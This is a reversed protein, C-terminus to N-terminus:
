ETDGPMYYGIIRAKWRDIRDIVVGTKRYAHIFRGHGIYIGVHNAWGTEMLKILVLCGVEPINIKEWDNENSKLENAIKTTEMAGVSYDNVEVGQRHFMEKALGWCDMGNKDRGGDIFPIGILDKYEMDM